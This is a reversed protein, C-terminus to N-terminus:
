VGGLRRSGYCQRRRARPSARASRADKPATRTDDAMAYRCHAIATDRSRAGALFIPPHQRVKTYQYLTHGETPSQLKGVGRAGRLRVPSRQWQRGTPVFNDKAHWRITETALGHLQQQSTLAAIAQANIGVTWHSDQGTNPHLACTM